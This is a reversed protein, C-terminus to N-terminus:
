TKDLDLAVILMYLILKCAKNILETKSVEPLRLFLTQNSELKLYNM